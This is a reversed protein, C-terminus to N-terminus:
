QREEITQKILEIVNKTGDATHAAEMAATLKERNEELQALKGLLKEKTVDEEEMMLSFGQSAFSRANLIQDGRSAARSLPILLAPKKLALLECIANAGARSIVTDALAFLHRLPEKVYEFQVYGPREAAADARGAGTLHVVDYKELLEDLAGRVQENLFESGQSGGIVLLVPKEGSFGTMALGEERSGSLLEARIPCGTLVAKDAPLAKLTEPFNCCVKQAYRMCMRNALGPTMDSEHLIVPIKKRSAAMAVPLSVFGGKSFVAAPRYKKMLKKSQSIGALM